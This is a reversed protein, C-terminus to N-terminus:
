INITKATNKEAELKTGQMYPGDAVLLLQPLFLRLHMYFSLSSDQKTTESFSLRM